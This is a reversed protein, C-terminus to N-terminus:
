ALVEMLTFTSRANGAGTSDKCRNMYISYFSETAVFYTTVYPM